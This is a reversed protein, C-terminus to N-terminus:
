TVIFIIKVLTIFSLLNVVFSSIFLIQTFILYEATIYMSVILNVFFWVLGGLPLLFLWIPSSLQDIGWPRSYWLPVLPPMRNWRWVILAISAVIFLVVFKTVLQLLWNHRIEKWFINM